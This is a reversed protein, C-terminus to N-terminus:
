SSRFGLFLVHLIFIFLFSPIGSFSFANLVLGGFRCFFVFFALVSLYSLLVSPFPSYSGGFLTAEFVSEISGQLRQISGPPSPFGHLLLVSPFPASSLLLTPFFHQTPRGVHVQGQLTFAAEDVLKM